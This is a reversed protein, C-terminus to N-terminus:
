GLGLYDNEKSDIFRLLNLIKLMIFFYAFIVVVLVVTIAILTKMAKSATEFSSDSTGAPLKKQFISYPQLWYFIFGYM